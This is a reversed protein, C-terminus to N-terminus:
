RTVPQFYAPLGNKTDRLIEVIAYRDARSLRASRAGKEEGSLIQWARAYIADRVEAPLHDFAESYIMYSCPYRLLRTNLDLQRLSRGHSDRPGFSAFKQAFGSESEIKGPLPAEDIFLLYDVLERVSEQLLAARHPRKDHTAARTDWGLRTLLNMMHMQHNFVVLAAIDSSSSLYGATEFAPPITQPQDEGAFVTNGMHRVTADGTVFWGGWREEFPSRHDTTFGGLILRPMGDPAPYRSRVMMGPVGLSADSIHCRLCDQDRRLFQPTQVSRQELTHFIIGEEPDQAALEIFGGRV